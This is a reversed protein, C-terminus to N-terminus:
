LLKSYSSVNLIQHTTVMGAVPKQAGGGTNCNSEKYTMGSKIEQTCLTVKWLIPGLLQFYVGVMAKIALSRRRYFSLASAVVEPGLCKPVSVLQGPGEAAWEPSDEGPGGM